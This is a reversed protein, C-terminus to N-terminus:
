KIQLTDEKNIRIAEGADELLKWVSWGCVIDAVLGDIVNRRNGLWEVWSGGVGSVWMLMNRLRKENESEGQM